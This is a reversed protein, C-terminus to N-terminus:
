SRYGRGHPSDGAGPNLKACIGGARTPEAKLRAIATFLRAAEGATLAATPEDMVVVRARHLFARLVEVMQRNGISLASAPVDLPLDPALRAAVDRVARRMASRDIWPGRRPYRRGLYVNEVADFYPVLQLEQHIFRLGASEADRPAAFAAPRGDMLLQGADPRLVGAWLKILTSKGAGNEGVLAHVEGPLIDVDVSALATTGAFRKTLGSAALVPPIGATSM